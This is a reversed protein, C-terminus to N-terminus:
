RPFVRRMLVRGDGPLGRSIEAALLAREATRLDATPVERFGHRAYFPGNWPIHALTTLTIERHGAAAAWRLVVELLATGLGQRAHEPLVDMEELHAHGELLDGLAFGVPRDDADAAVWLRGAACGRAYDARPTVITTFPGALGFPAFAVGARAEIGPLLEVEAPRAARVQYGSRM